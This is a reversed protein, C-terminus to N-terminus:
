ISWRWWGGRQVSKYVLVNPHTYAHTHTHHDAPVGADTFKGIRRFSYNWSPEWSDSRSLSLRSTFGQPLWTSPNTTYQCPQNKPIRSLHLLSDAGLPSETCDDTKWPVSSIQPARCFGMTQGNGVYHQMWMFQSLLWIASSPSLQISHSFCICFATRRFLPTDSHYM